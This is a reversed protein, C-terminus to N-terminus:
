PFVVIPGGDTPIKYSIPILVELGRIHPPSESPLPCAKRVLDLAAQDLIEIGSSEQIEITDVKGDSKILARVMVNGEAHNHLAVISYARVDMLRMWFLSRYSSHTTMLYTLPVKFSIRPKGLPRDLEIPGISRLFRVAENDLYVYGSSDVVRIDELNGQKTLLGCLVVRGEWGNQQAIVPYHIQAAIRNWIPSVLWAHQNPMGNDIAHAGNEKCPSKVTIPMIPVLPLRIQSPGFLQKSISGCGSLLLVFIGCLIVVRCRDARSIKVLSPIEHSMPPLM